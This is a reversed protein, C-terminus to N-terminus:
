WRRDMGRWLGNFAPVSFANSRKAASCLCTVLCSRRLENYRGALVACEPVALDATPPKPEEECSITEKLTRAVLRSVIIVTDRAPLRELM